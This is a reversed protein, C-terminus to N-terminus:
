IIKVQGWHPCHINKNKNAFLFQDEEVRVNKYTKGTGLGGIVIEHKHTNSKMKNKLSNFCNLLLINYRLTKEKKM